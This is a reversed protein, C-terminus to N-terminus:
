KKQPMMVAGAALDAVKLSVVQLQGGRAQQLVSIKTEVEAVETDNLSKQCFNGAVHKQLDARRLFQHGCMSCKPM